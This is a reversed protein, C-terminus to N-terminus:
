YGGDDTDDCAQCVAQPNGAVIGVVLKRSTRRKCAKALWFLM